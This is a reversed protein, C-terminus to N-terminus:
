TTYWSSLLDRINCPGWIVDDYIFTNSYILACVDVTKGEMEHLLLYSNSQIIGLYFLGLAVSKGLTCM